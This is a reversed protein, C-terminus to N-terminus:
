NDYNFLNDVTHTYYGGNQFLFYKAMYMTNHLIMDCTGYWTNKKVMITLKWFTTSM